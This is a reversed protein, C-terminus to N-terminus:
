HVLLKGTMVYQSENGIWRQLSHHLITRFWRADVRRSFGCGTLDDM